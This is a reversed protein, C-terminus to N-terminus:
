EVGSQQDNHKMSTDRQIKAKKGSRFTYSLNFGVYRAKMYNIKRITYDPTQTNVRMAVYKQFPTSVEINTTLRGKFWTKGVLFSYRTMANITSNPEPTQKFHMVNAGFHWNHPLYYDIWGFINLTYDNQKKDEYKLGYYGGNVNCKLVLATLPQWNFFLNGTLTTVKGMNDYTSVMIDNEKDKTQHYIIANDSHTYAAGITYYFRKKFKSINLSVRNQIESKLHPNGMSAAYGNQMSFFPNLMVITPRKTTRTYNASIRMGKISRSVELSPTFYFESNTHKIKEAYPTKMTLYDYESSLSLSYNVNYVTGSLRIYPYLLKQSYSIDAHNTTTTNGLRWISKAGVSAKCQKWIMMSYTINATHEHLGGDTKVQYDQLMSEDSTWLQSYHRRDPNYTYRYGFTIREQQPSHRYYNRYILNSEITGSTNNNRNEFMSTHSPENNVRVRQEWLTKFDTKLIMGHIDAYIVNLTDLQWSAMSRVIHKHWNGNGKGNLNVFSNPYAYDQTIPQQRQTNLDYNYSLSFDVNGKKALASASTKATPQTTGNVSTNLSFGDLMKKETIINIIAAGNSQFRNDETTVVEIQKVLHAPLSQLTQTTNAEAIDYRKGNLYIQYNDYGIVSLRGAPTVDLMPVFRMAQLLNLGKTYKNHNLEYLLGTNTQKILSAKGMVTVEKLLQNDTPLVFQSSFPQRFTKAVYGIKSIRISSVTTDLEIGFRGSIDTICGGVCISDRNLCVVNAYDIPNRSEDTVVGKLKFTQAMLRLPFCMFGYLLLFFLFRNLISKQLTEMNHINRKM